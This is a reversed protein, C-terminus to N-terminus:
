IGKGKKIKYAITQANVLSGPGAPISFYVGFKDVRNFGECPFLLKLIFIMKAENRTQKKISRNKGPQFSGDTLVQGRRTIVMLM